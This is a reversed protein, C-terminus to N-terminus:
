RQPHWIPFQIYGKYNLLVETVVTYPYSNIVPEYIMLRSDEYLSFGSVASYDKIDDPKVKEILKGFANYIKISIGSLKRQNDYFAYFTGHDDGKENMITVSKRISYSANNDSHITLVCEMNRVVANADKLLTDPILYSPFILEGGFGAVSLLLFLNISLFYQKM